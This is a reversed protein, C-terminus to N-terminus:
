SKPDEEPQYLRVINSATTPDDTCGDRDAHVPTCEGDARVLWALVPWSTTGGEDTSFEARWTGGPVVGVVAADAKALGAFNSYSSAERLRGTKQDAVMAAGDEDWAVVPKTTFYPRGGTPNEHSYRAEYPHTAPIM